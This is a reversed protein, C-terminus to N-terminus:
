SRVLPRMSQKSWPQTCTYSCSPACRTGVQVPANLAATTSKRSAWLASTGALLQCSHSEFHNCTGITSSNLAAVIWRLQILHFPHTMPVCTPVCSSARESNMAPLRSPPFLTSPAASYALNSLQSRALALIPRYQQLPLDPTVASVLQVHVNSCTLPHMRCHL